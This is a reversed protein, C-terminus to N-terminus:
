LTKSFRWCAYMPLLVVMPALAVVFILVDKGKFSIFFSATGVLFLPLACHMLSRGGFTNVAYWNEESEFAKRMRFGYLRNGPILGKVLPLSVLLIVAGLIINSLVITISLSDM